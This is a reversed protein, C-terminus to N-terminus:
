GKRTLRWITVSAFLVTFGVMAAIALQLPFFQFKEIDGAHMMFQLVHFQPWVPAQWHMSEPLPFFMGSLYCGPLYIINAWGPAAPAPGVAIRESM